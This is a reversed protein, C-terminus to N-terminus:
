GASEPNRQRLLLVVLTFGMAVLATLVLFIIRYSGTVDFTRGALLPGLSGGITGCALVIGFLLGHSATGFFEAIMPSMVTFFGGHALGYVLAFLFLMWDKSAMQLWVLSALLLLFCIILSRKGGIKDNWAGMLIRGLMSIGGITALVGAALAPRLGLDTAHPVIHVVITLLCFFIAFEAVCITWFERSRVAARLPVSREASKRGRGTQVASDGDPLLGM